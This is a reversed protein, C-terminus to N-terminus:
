AEWEMYPLNWGSPLLARYTLTITDTASGLEVGGDKKIRPFWLYTRKATAQRTSKMRFFLEVEGLTAIANTGGRYALSASKKYFYAVTQGAQGSHFTIVASGVAHQGTAISGVGANAIQTLRSNGNTSDLITAEMVQDATLGAETITYTSTSPITGTKYVPYSVSAATGKTQNFVLDLDGYDLSQSNLTITWTSTSSITDSDQLIGVDSEPYAQTTETTEEQAINVESIRVVDLVGLGLAGPRRLCFAGFGTWNVAM